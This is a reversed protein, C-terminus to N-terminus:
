PNNQILTLPREETHSHTNEKESEEQRVYKGSWEKRNKREKMELKRM